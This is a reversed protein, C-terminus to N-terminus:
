EPTFVMLMNSFKLPASFMCICCHCSQTLSPPDCELWATGAGGANTCLTLSLSFVSPNSSSDYLGLMEAYFLTLDGTTEETACQTAIFDNVDAEDEFADLFSIIFNDSGGSARHDAAFQLLTPAADAM